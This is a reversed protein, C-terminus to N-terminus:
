AIAGLIALGCDWLIHEEQLSRVIDSDKITVNM